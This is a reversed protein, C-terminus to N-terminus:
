QSGSRGAVYKGRRRNPHLVAHATKSVETATVRGATIREIIHGYHAPLWGRRLWQGAMTRSIDLAESLWRIVSEERDKKAGVLRAMYSM